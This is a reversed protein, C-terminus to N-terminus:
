VVSKRDGGHGFDVLHSVKNEITANKIASAWHVHKYSQLSLIQELLDDGEKSLDKGSEDTSYIPISLDKGSIRKIGLREVDDMVNKIANSLGSWHFPVSVKLYRLYFEKKRKSHAVRSQSQKEKTPMEARHLLLAFSHLSEPHGVVVCARPGNRLALEIYREKSGKLSKNVIGIYKNIDEDLLHVIALMPTPKGYGLQKSEQLIESRVELSFPVSHQLRIGFWLMLKVYSIINDILNDFTTSSSAIVASLIGQSHGTFGNFLCNAEAPTINWTHLTIFYHCLQTLSIMPCSVPASSLYSEDPFTPSSQDNSQLWSLVDFGYPSYYISADSHKSQELIEKSAREIIPVVIPYTEYLEKLESYWSPGQGGFVGFLKSDTDKLKQLLLPAQNSEKNQYDGLEKAVTFYTKIIDIQSVLGRTVSHIDNGDLSQILKWHGLRLLYLKSAQTITVNNNFSSMTENVPVINQVTKLFTSWVKIDHIQGESPTGINEVTGNTIWLSQVVVTLEVPIWVQITESLKIPVKENNENQFHSTEISRQYKWENFAIESYSPSKGNSKLDKINEM